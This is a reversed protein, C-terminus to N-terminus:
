RLEEMLQYATACLSRVRLHFDKFRIDSTQGQAYRYYIQQLIVALKFVGLVEHWGISSIDRGTQAAYRSLFQERTFWGDARPLGTVQNDDAGPSGAHLWYCLSLGLDAMPDGVTAMEWDLVAAIRSPDLPDLMLNDLKYDNHVLAPPGSVPINRELWEVVHDMQAIPETQAHRWRGTWGHVQRELFGEPKGISTLHHQVVDVNHLAALCDVLAGSVRPAFDPIGAYEEPLNTRVVLGRRREMLYFPAGIVAADECLWDVRPALPFHPHIARLVGAERMMDHAKPPLPGLPARRLVYEHAGTRLLYTLNSHGGPFQEATLPEELGPLKGRLYDALQHLPLEEGKRIPATDEAM